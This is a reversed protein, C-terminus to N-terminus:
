VLARCLLGGATCADMVISSHLKSPPLAFAVCNIICAWGVSGFLVTLSVPYDVRMRIRYGQDRQTKRRIKQQLVVCMCSSSAIDERYAIYMKGLKFM